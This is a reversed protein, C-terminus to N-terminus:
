EGMHLLANLFLTWAIAQADEPIVFWTNRLGADQTFPFGQTWFDRLSLPRAHAVVQSFDLSSALSIDGLQASGVAAVCRAESAMAQDFVWELVNVRGPELGPRRTQASTWTPASAQGFPVSVTWSQFGDAQKVPHSAYLAGNLWFSVRLAGGSPPPKFKLTIPVRANGVAGLDVPLPLAFAQGGPTAPWQMRQEPTAARLDALLVEGQSKRKAASWPLEDQWARVWRSRDLVQSALSAHAQQWDSLAAATDHAHRGQVLWLQAHPKGPHPVTRISPRDVDPVHQLFAPKHQNSFVVVSHTESPLDQSINVGALMGPYRQGMHHALMGAVQLYALSAHPVVMNLQRLGQPGLGVLLRPMDGPEQTRTPSTRLKLRTRREVVVQTATFKNTGECPGPLLEFSVRNDAKLFHAPIDLDVAHVQEGARTELFLTTVQADNVLVKLRLDTGAGAGLVRYSLQLDASLIDEDLNSLLTIDQRTRAASLVMPQGLLQGLDVQRDQFTSAPEAVQQQGTAFLTQRAREKKQKVAAMSGAPMLGLVLVGVLILMAM